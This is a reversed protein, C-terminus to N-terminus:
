EFRTLAPASPFDLTTVDNTGSHSISVYDHESVYSWPFRLPKCHRTDNEIPSAIHNDDPLLRQYLTEAHVTYRLPSRRYQLSATTFITRPHLNGTLTHALWISASHQPRLHIDRRESLRQHPLHHPRHIRMSM